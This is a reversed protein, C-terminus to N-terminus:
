LLHLGNKGNNKLTSYAFLYVSDPKEIKPKLAFGSFVFVATFISILNLIKSKLVRKM